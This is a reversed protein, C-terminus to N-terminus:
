SRPATTTASKYANISLGGGAWKEDEPTKRGTPLDDLFATNEKHGPM